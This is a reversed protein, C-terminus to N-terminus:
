LNGCAGGSERRLRGAEAALERRQGEGEARLREAETRADDLLAEAERQAAAKAEAVAQEADRTALERLEEAARTAAVLAEGIAREPEVSQGPPAGAHETQFRHFEEALRDRKAIAANLEDAAEELLERTAEISYGRFARPLEAGRLDSPLLPMPSDKCTGDLGAVKTGDRVGDFVDLARKLGAL